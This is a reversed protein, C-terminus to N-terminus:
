RGRAPSSSGGGPARSAVGAASPGMSRQVARRRRLSPTAAPAPSGAPGRGEADGCQGGLLREVALSIPWFAFFYFFTVLYIATGVVDDLPPALGTRLWWVQYLLWAGAAWIALALAARLTRANQRRREIRYGERNM